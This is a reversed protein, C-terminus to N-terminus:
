EDKQFLKQFRPPGLPNPLLAAGSSLGLSADKSLSTDGPGHATRAQPHPEPVTPHGREAMHSPPVGTVLFEVPNERNEGLDTRGLAPCPGVAAGPSETIRM